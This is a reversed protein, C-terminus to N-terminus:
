SSLVDKAGPGLWVLPIEIEIWFLISGKSTIAIFYDCVCVNFTVPTFWMHTDSARSMKTKVKPPLDRLM